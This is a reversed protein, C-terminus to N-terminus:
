RFYDQNEQMYNKLFEIFLVTAASPKDRLWGAALVSPIQLSDLLTFQLKNQMYFRSRYPLITIGEGAEVAYLLDEFLDYYRLVNPQFGLRKCADLIQSYMAASNKPNLFIFPESSLKGYDTSLVELAPHDAPTVVCFYDVFLSKVAMEPFTMLDSLMSFYVDYRAHQIDEVIESANRRHQQVKIQPNERQFLRLVEPLFYATPAQLYALDLKQSDQEAMALRRKADEMVQVAKKADSLFIQGKETLKVNRTSREFLEIGLEKELNRIQTSITPQTVYLEKAAKTFNHYKAITILYQLQEFTM